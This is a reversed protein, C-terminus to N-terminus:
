LSLDCRVETVVQGWLRHTKRETERFGASEYLHMAAPLGTVTWLYVRRFGRERCYALACEMLQRGLGKGRCEPEVLFWRLQAEDVSRAVIAICGVIRGSQEALWVQGRNPDTSLAFSALGEAVYADFTCDWGRDRYLTGHLYVIAGIDGPRLNTRIRIPDQCNAPIDM